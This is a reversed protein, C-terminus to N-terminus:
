WGMRDKLAKIHALHHRSHWAFIALFGGLPIERGADPYFFTINLQHDSLSKLDLVWNQHANCIIELSSQVANNHNAGLDLPGTGREPEIILNNQKLGYRFMEYARTHADALHVIVQQVTWGNERYRTSFKEDDFNEVTRLLEGPFDGLIGVYGQMDEISIKEPMEFRGVPYKLLELENM